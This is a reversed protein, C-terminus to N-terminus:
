YVPLYKRLGTLLRTPLSALLCSRRSSHLHSVRVRVRVRVLQLLAQCLGGPQRLVRAWSSTDADDDASRLAQWVSGSKWTALHIAHETADQARGTGQVGQHEVIADLRHREELRGAARSRNGKCGGNRNLFQLLDQTAM